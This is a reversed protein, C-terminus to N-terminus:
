KKEAAKAEAAARAESIERKTGMLAASEPMSELALSINKEAAAFKRMNMQTCALNNLAKVDDPRSVLCRKFFEESRAWLRLDKYRMAIAFNASYDNPLHKRIIQAPHFAKNYDELSLALTLRDFPTEQQSSLARRRENLAVIEKYAPNKANLSAAIGADEGSRALLTEADEDTGGEANKVLAALNGEWASRADAILSLAFQVAFFKDCASDDHCSEVFDHRSGYCALVAERAINLAMSRGKEVRPDNWKWGPRAVTGAVVPLPSDLASKKWVEMGNEVACAALREPRRSLWYELLPHGSRSEALVIKEDGSKAARLRLHREYQSDSPVMSVTAVSPRGGSRAYIEILPDFFGDTFIVEAGQTEEMLLLAYARVASMMARMSPQSCRIISGFLLAGLVVAPISIQLIRSFTNLIAKSRSEYEEMDESEAGYVRRAVYKHDRSYFEIGLVSLAALFTAASFVTIMIKMEGSEIAPRTLVGGGVWKLDWIWFQSFGGLQSFALLACILYLIGIGYPLIREEDTASPLLLISFIFPVLVMATFAMWGMPTAASGLLGLYEGLLMLPVASVSEGSPELGGNFIFFLANAGMMLGIGSLLLITLHWRSSQEVTLDALPTDFDVSRRSIGYYALWMAGGLPIAMPTNGALLGIAFVALYLCSLSGRSLFRSFECLMLSVLFLTLTDPSFTQGLQWIPVSFVFAVTAIFSLFCQMLLVRKKRRASRQMSLSLINRGFFYMMFASVAVSVRGIVSLATTGTGFGPLRYLMSVLCRWLGNHIADPPRTGAAVAADQWVSPHMLPHAWLTLAGAIMASVLAALVFDLKVYRVTLASAPVSLDAKVNKLPM